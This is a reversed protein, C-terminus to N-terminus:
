VDGYIGNGPVNRGTSRAGRYPSTKRNAAYATFMIREILRTISRAPAAGEYYSEFATRLMGASIEGLDAEVVYPLPLPETNVRVVGDGHRLHCRHRDTDPNPPYHGNHSRARLTAPLACPSHNM